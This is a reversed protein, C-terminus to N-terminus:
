ACCVLFVFWDYPRTYISIHKCRLPTLIKKSQIWSMRVDSFLIQSLWGCV